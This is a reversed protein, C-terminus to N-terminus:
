AQLFRDSYRLIQRDHTVLVLPETLAQAILMRDFPDQHLM